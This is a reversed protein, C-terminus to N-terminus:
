RRALHAARGPTRRSTDTVEAQQARSAASTTGRLQAGLFRSGLYAQIISHQFRVEDGSEHVLGMRTGWTAAIRVDMWPTRAHIDSGTTSPCLYGDPHQLQGMREGLSRATREVWEEDTGRERPAHGNAGGLNPDLKGLSVRASDSALGICALASVFEIVASRTDCDIPLEPHIVGDILADFWANLLSERLAWRDHTELQGSGDDSWVPELLDRAHLDKAIQLYLPSEAMNAAEVLRDIPKLDARWTGARAVYHLAAEDSLPELESIAAQMGRLPDHPRSAIVLPLAVKEEGVQAIARRIANDRLGALERGALAEDLGDAVVVVRDSSRRLWRWVRDQEAGSTVVPAVIEGFRKRALECFDLDEERQVDRLRIPVPIAGSAALRETLHVMLATKGTGVNGIIVHPRRVRRDHLNNMIADCVQDRGVVKDVLSGATQVLQEPHERAQRAYYRRVRLLRWALFVVTSYALLLVPMAIGNVAECSTVIDTCGADPNYPGWSWGGDRFWMVTVASRVVWAVLLLSLIWLVVVLIKNWPPNRWHHAHIVGRRLLWRNRRRWHWAYIPRRLFALSERVVGGERSGQTIQIKPPRLENSM